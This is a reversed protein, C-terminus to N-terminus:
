SKLKYSAGDFEDLISSIKFEAQELQTVNAFQIIMKTIGFDEAKNKEDKVLFDDKTFGWCMLDDIEWEDTLMDFDWDGTNKNLRIMLEDVDDSEIFLDPMYVDVLKQGLKKLVKLRQHGGIISGDINCVIPECMGYKSISKELSACQEKSLKRPNKKSIKLDDISKTEIHWKFTNMTKLNGKKKHNISDLPM